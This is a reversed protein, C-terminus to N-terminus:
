EYLQVDVLEIHTCQNLNDQSVTFCMILTVIKNLCFCCIMEAFRTPLSLTYSFGTQKKFINENMKHM